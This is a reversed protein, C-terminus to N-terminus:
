DRPKFGTLRLINRSFIGDIQEDSLCLSTESCLAKAAHYQKELIDYRFGRPFFSSDTGFVVREPGAAKVAKEYLKELTLDIPQYRMWSNSGSTDMYVNETQYQLMLVERFFGAGFHAVMFNLDPFDQAPVQIDLPNGSGLNATTGITIGFHLIVLLGNRQAEEYIPYCVKDNSRIEPWSSPYLKIGQFRDRGARRVIDIADDSAPDINANGMFYGPFRKRAELFEEWAEPGVMFGMASIGYKDMEDAWLKGTDWEKKPLEFNKMDTKSKARQELRDLSTGGNLWNRVTGYTMFHAHADVVKVGVKSLM